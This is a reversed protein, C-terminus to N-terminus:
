SYGNPNKDGGAPEAERGKDPTTEPPWAYWDSALLEAILGDMIRVRERDKKFRTIERAVSAGSDDVNAQLFINEFKAIRKQIDTAKLPPSSHKRFIADVGYAIAPRDSIWEANLVRKYLSDTEGVTPEDGARAVLEHLSHIARDFANGLGRVPLIPAWLEKFEAKIDQLRQIMPKVAERVRALRHSNDSMVRRHGEDEGKTEEFMRRELLKEWLTWVTMLAKRSLGNLLGSGYIPLNHYNPADIRAVKFYFVQGTERDPLAIQTVYRPDTWPNEGEPIEDLTLGVEEFMYPPIKPLGQARRKANLVELEEPSPPKQRPANM